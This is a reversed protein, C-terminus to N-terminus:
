EEDTVRLRLFLKEHTGKAKSFIYEKGTGTDTGTDTLPYWDELDPSWDATFAVGSVGVPETFRFVLNDGELGGRPILHSDAITPNLGFAWELFNLTGDNDFDSGDAGNGVDGPSGFHTLRWQQRSTLTVPAAVIALSHYATSSSSIKTFREGVALAAMNVAVPVNSDTTSGDGLQGASNDGWAVATGDACLAVSSQRGAGVEVVTKGALAGDTKVLVPLNNGTLSGDGLQGDTNLGWAAVTGDSAVAVTHSVAGAASVIAKGALVGSTNVASISEVKQINNGIGLQGELNRGVGVLTGNSLLALSHTWGAMISSILVSGDGGESIPLPLAGLPLVPVPATWDLDDNSALQGEAGKGWGRLFGDTALALSHKEGAAIAVTANAPLHGGTLVPVPVFSDVYTSGDGLQGKENRGWAFVNGDSTLALSHELGAAIAVVTKGALAGTRDVLVPVRIIQRDTSGDGVQGYQNRGWAALTGDSCLVLSHDRGTAVAIITKDQLVGTNLISVPNPSNANGNNGLQGLAGAGWGVARNNKWVLVLDNGNGGYYNAVFEYNVGGYSLTVAQGHALDSFAGTIFAYGTNKVVTLTTGTAPAYGLALNATGSANYSAATVPVDGGSTYTHNIAATGSQVVLLLAFAALILASIRHFNIM